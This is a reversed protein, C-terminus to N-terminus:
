LFKFFSILIKWKRIKHRTHMVLRPVIAPVPVRQLVLVLMPYRGVHCKDLFYKQYPANSKM